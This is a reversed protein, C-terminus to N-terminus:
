LTELMATPDFMSFWVFLRPTLNGSLFALEAELRGARAREKMKPRFFGLLSGGAAM